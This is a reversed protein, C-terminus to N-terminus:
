PPEQFLKLQALVTQIFQFQADRTWLEANNEIAVTAIAVDQFPVTVGSSRLSWLNRGVKEWMADPMALLPFTALAQLLNAYHSADRAGHLVEAVVIGCLAPQLTNFLNQLKADPKRLADIMVSSDVLIM